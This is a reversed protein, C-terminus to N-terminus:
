SKTNMLLMFHKNSTTILILYNSVSSKNKGLFGSIVNIMLKYFNKDEKRIQVIKDIVAVFLDKDEKHKSILQYTTKFKIGEQIAKKIIASSCIDSKKFITTDETEIYYLGFKINDFDGKFAVWWDNLDLRIWEEIPNYM